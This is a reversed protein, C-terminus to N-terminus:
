VHRYIWVCVCRFVSKFLFVYRFVCRYMWLCLGICGCVGICGSMHRYMWQCVGICGCM